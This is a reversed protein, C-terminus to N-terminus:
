KNKDEFKIGFINSDTISLKNYDCDYCDVDKVACGILNMGSIDSNMFSMDRLDIDVWVTHSVDCHVFSSNRVNGYRFVARTMNCQSFNIDTITCYRTNADVFKCNTISSEYIESHKLYIYEFTTGEIEAETFRCQNLIVGGVFNCGRIYLGDSICRDFVVNSDIFEDNNKCDIFMCCSLDCMKFEVGTLNVNRFVADRFDFNAFHLGTLDADCIEGRKGEKCRTLIALRNDKVIEYVESETM